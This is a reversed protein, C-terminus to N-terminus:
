PYDSYGWSPDCFISSISRTRAKFPLIFGLLLTSKSLFGEKVSTSNAIAITIAANKYILGM